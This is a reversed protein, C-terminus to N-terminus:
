YLILSTYWTYGEDGRKRELITIKIVFAAVLLTRWRESFSGKLALLWKNGSVFQKIVQEGHELGTVLITPPLLAM